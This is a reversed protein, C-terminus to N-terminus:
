PEHGSSLKLLVWLPRHDSAETETTGSEILELGKVFVHDLTFNFFAKEVTVGADRSARSFGDQLYSGPYQEQRQQYLVKM